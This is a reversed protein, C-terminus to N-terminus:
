AEKHEKRRRDPADKIAEVEDATFVWIGSPQMQRGVGVKKRRLWVTVRDLGLLDAVERTTWLKDGNKDTMM